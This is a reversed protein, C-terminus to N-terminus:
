ADATLGHAELVALVANLKTNTANMAAVRKADTDLDDAGGDDTYDVKADAITAQQTSIMPNDNEDAMLSKSKTPNAM